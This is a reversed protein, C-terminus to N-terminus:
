TACSLNLEDNSSIFLRKNDEEWLNKSKKGKRKKKVRKREREREWGTEITEKKIWEERGRSDTYQSVDSFILKARHGWGICVDRNNTRYKRMEISFTIGNWFWKVQYYSKRNVRNEKSYSIACSIEREKWISRSIKRKWQIKRRWYYELLIGFSEVIM